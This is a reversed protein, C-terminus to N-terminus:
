WGGRCRGPRLVWVEHGVTGGAPTLRQEDWFGSDRSNRLEAASERRRWIVAGRRGSALESSFAGDHGVPAVGASLIRRGPGLKVGRAAPGDGGPRFILVSTGCRPSRQLVALM